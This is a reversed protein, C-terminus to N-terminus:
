RHPSLLSFVFIDSFKGNWYSAERFFGEKVFGAHTLVKESASNAPDIIAEVSHLRYTDFGHQLVAALAERLIGKGHYADHLMYGVEARHHAAQMRVYGIVGIVKDEGKLTIGWNIGENREAMDTFRNILELADEKGAAKPRPIFHMLQPHSRLYLVEDVDSPRIQRLLLRDTGIEPIPSLQLTLM